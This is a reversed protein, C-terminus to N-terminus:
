GFCKVRLISTGSIFSVLPSDRLRDPIVSVPAYFYGDKPFLAQVACFVSTAKPLGFVVELLETLGGKRRGM